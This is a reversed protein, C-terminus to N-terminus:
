VHKKSSYLTDHWMIALSWSQIRCIMQLVCNWVLLLETLHHYTKTNSFQLTRSMVTTNASTLAKQQLSTNTFHREYKHHIHCHTCYLSKAIYIAPSRYQLIQCPKGLGPNHVSANHLFYLIEKGAASLSTVHFISKQLTYIFTVCITGPISVAPRPNKSCHWLPCGSEGCWV